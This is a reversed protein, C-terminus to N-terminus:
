QVTTECNAIEDSGSGGTCNDNNTGPDFPPPDSFPNDGDIFDAGNGGTITDSGFNGWLTDDGAGGDMVDNLPGMSGEGFIQTTVGQGLESLSRYDAILSTESHSLMNIFGPAVALGKADVETAAKAKSLDGIAAIQDGKIGVDARRGARGTGDYVTGNRIIIDYAPQQQHQGIGTSVLLVILLIAFSIDRVIMKRGTMQTGREIDGAIM